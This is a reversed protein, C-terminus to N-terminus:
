DQQSADEIAKLREEFDTKEQINLMSSISTIINNGVDSPIRGTSIATVIQLSQKHHSGKEDFPFEYMPSVSKPIPSMRILLEKFTFNDKTDHAKTVLLDYFGDEDKGQRKMADLIKNRESKGRAPMRKRSEATMTTKTPERTAM